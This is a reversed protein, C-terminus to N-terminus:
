KPKKILLFIFFITILFLETLYMLKAYGGKTNVVWNYGINTLGRAWQKEKTKFKESNTLKYMESMLSVHIKHYKMNCSNGILDYDSWKEGKDFKSISNEIAKLLNETERNEINFKDEYAKIGFTSYIMGNLVYALNSTNVKPDVYEEIWKDNDLYTLSGNKKVEKLSSKYLAKAATLYKEDKYVDYARLMLTIAYADTLGSWWPKKLVGGGPYGSYNWNFNYLFHAEGFKYDINDVLWDASNKFFEKKNEKPPINWFEISSDERWHFGEKNENYLESYILGYHVVYFPSIFKGKVNPNSSIPLGKNDFSRVQLNGTAVFNRIRANISEIEYAFINFLYVTTLLLIFTLVKNKKVKM